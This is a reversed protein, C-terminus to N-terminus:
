CNDFTFPMVKAIIAINGQESYGILQSLKCLKTQYKNAKIDISAQQMHINLTIKILKANVQKNKAANKELLM